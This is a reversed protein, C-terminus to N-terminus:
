FGVIDSNLARREKADAERRASNLRRPTLPPGERARGTCFAGAAQRRMSTRSASAPAENM